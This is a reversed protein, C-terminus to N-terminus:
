AASEPKPDQTVAGATAFYTAFLKEAMQAYLNSGYEHFPFLEVGALKELYYERSGLLDERALRRILLLVGNINVTTLFSDSQRKDTTWRRNPLIQRIASFVKNIEDRCFEVYKALLKVDTGAKLKERDDHTWINFLPFESSLSVLPKFGYLAISTNKLKDQDYFYREFWDQLAGTNENLANLVLRAVSEALFPKLMVNIEHKLNTGPSTQKSNIELFLNAEFRSREANSIDDPFIVGTVLLNLQKRLGSVKEDQPGGEFYSYVRHQGDILGIVNFAKPIEVIAPETTKIISPDVTHGNNNFIRTEQPLTVIINNIFAREETILYQRVANIKKPSIMRQYAAASSRWSGRRLVYSRELLVEPQVYFTVVKYGKGFNSFDEPLISGHHKTSGDGTSFINDSFKEHRIGLFDLLEYRASRKVTRVLTQFYRATPYELYGIHPILSKIGEELTYRPCYIVRVQTLNPSFRSGYATSFSKYTAMMHSIFAAPQDTIKGFVISKNKLHKNVDASSVTYEALVVVNEYIFIDDFDCTAGDFTFEKDRLEPISKFGCGDFIGQVMREQARQEPTKKPGKSKAAKVKGKGGKAKAAKGKIKPKSAAQHAASDTPQTPSNDSGSSGKTM